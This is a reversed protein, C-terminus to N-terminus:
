IREVNIGARRLMRAIRRPSTTRTPRGILRPLRLWLWEAAHGAAPLLGRGPNSLDFDIEIFEPPLLPWAEAPFHFPSHHIVQIAAFPRTGRWGTVASPYLSELPNHRSIGHDWIQLCREPGQSNAEIWALWEPTARILCRDERPEGFLEVAPARFHKCWGAFCALFQAPRDETRRM